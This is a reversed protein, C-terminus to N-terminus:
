WWYCSPCNTEESRDGRWWCVASKGRAPRGTPRTNNLTSIPSSEGEGRGLPLPDDQSTLYYGGAQGSRTGPLDTLGLCSYGGLWWKWLTGSVGKETAGGPVSKLRQYYAHSLKQPRALAPSVGLLRGHTSPSVGMCEGARM